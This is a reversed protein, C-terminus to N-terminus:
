SKSDNNQQFISHFDERVQIDTELSFLVDSLLRQHIYSWRFEPIRFPPRAPGPSFTKKSDKQPKGVAPQAAPVAAQVPPVKRGAFRRTPGIDVSDCDTEEEDDDPGGNAAVAAAAPSEDEDEDEVDDEKDSVSYDDQSPSPSPEPPADVPLAVAAAAKSQRRQEYMEYMSNFHLKFEEYSVKSHVISMTDVWVRWGAPEYKIGYHLLMRFLAFVMDSVKQEEANKPHIYALSILWDQWVSMQLVTRRNERSNSCLLTMDSLFLKKVEELAHCPKSQKLLSAVM